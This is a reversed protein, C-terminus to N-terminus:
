NSQLLYFIGPGPILSMDGANAPLNKDVAGGPFDEKLKYKHKFNRMIFIPISLIIFYSNSVFISFLQLKEHGDQNVQTICPINMHILILLTYLISLPAEQLCYPFPCLWM